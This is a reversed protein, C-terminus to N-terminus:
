TEPGTARARRVAPPLGMSRLENPGGRRAAARMVALALVAVPLTLLVAPPWILMLGVFSVLMGVLPAAVVAPPSINRRIWEAATLWQGRRWMVLAAPGLLGALILLVSLLM